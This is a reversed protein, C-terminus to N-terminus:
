FCCGSTAGGPAVSCHVPLFTLNAETGPVLPDLPPAVPGHGGWILLIQGIKKLFVIDERNKGLQGGRVWVATRRGGTTGPVNEGDSLDYRKSTM